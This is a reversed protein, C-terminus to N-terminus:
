EIVGLLDKGNFYDMIIVIKSGNNDEYVKHVRIINPHDLMKLIDFEKM